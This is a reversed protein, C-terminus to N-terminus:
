LEASGPAAQSAPAPQAAGTPRVQTEFAAIAAVVEAAATHHVMHGVGEVAHVQGGMLERALRGTHSEFSVVKDETGALVLALGRVETLRPALRAAEIPMLAADAASARIQSPRLGMGGRFWSRFAPPVKAPAFMKKLVLPATLRGLAPSVTFRMIDGFLPIAPGSALPADLRLTPWYYGSMLVLGAVRDPEELAMHLAVLTGWSHAVILPQEMGVAELASLLHLAQARATWIKTRPRDSYGYGPRDFAIVRHNEALRDLLGSLRFDEATVVNGHILVIPPGAGQELYHLRVGDVTVFKGQPPQRRETQRALLHNAVAGALLAAGGGLLLGGARPAPGRLRERWLASIKRISSM